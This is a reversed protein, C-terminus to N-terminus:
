GPKLEMLATTALTLTAIVVGGAVLQPRVPEGRQARKLRPVLFGLAIALIAVYLLVGALLWGDGLDYPGDALQYAGTAGVVISAPVALTRSIWLITGFAHPLQDPAHREAALQIFPYAFTPGFALVVAVVHLAVSLEYASM